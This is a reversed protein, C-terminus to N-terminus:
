IDQIYEVVISIIKQVKENCNKFKMVDLVNIGQEKIVERILAHIFSQTASNVGEFDLIVVQNNRLAPLIYDIRIQKAIDKNEAFDSTYKLIRIIM